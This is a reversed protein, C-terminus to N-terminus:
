NCSNNVVSKKIWNTKLFRNQKIQKTRENLKVPVRIYIFQSGIENKQINEVVDFMRTLSHQTIFLEAPLVKSKLLLDHMIM